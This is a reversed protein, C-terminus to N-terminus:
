GEDTVVGANSVGEETTEVGDMKRRLTGIRGELEDVRAIVREFAPALKRAEAVAYEARDMASSASRTVNGLKSSAANATRKAEEASDVADTARSRIDFINERHNDFLQQFRVLEGRIFTVSGQLKRLWQMVGGSAEEAKKERPKRDIWNDFKSGDQKRSSGHRRNAIHKPVVEFGLAVSAAHAADKDETQNARWQPTMHVIFGELAERQPKTLTHKYRRKGDPETFLRDTTM